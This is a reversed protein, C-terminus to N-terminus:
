EPFCLINSIYFHFLLSAGGEPRIFATNATPQAYSFTWRVIQFQNISLYQLFSITRKTISADIQAWFLATGYVQM